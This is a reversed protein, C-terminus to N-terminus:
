NYFNLDPQYEVLFEDFSRFQQAKSRLKELMKLDEADEILELIRKYEDIDLIVASPKGDKLIIEARKKKKTAKM